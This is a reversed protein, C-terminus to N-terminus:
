RKLRNINQVLYEPRIDPTGHRIALEEVMQTVEAETGLKEKYDRLAIEVAKKKIKAFRDTFFKNEVEDIETSRVIEKDITGDAKINPAINKMDMYATMQSPIEQLM